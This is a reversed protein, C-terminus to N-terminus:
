SKFEYFHYNKNLSLGSFDGYVEEEIIEKYISEGKKFSRNTIKLFEEEKPIFYKEREGFMKKKLLKTLYLIFVFLILIYGYFLYILNWFDWTQSINNYKLYLLNIILFNIRHYIIFFNNLFKNIKENMNEEKKQNINKKVKKNIIKEKNVNKIEKYFYIIKKFLFIIIFISTQILLVYMPYIMNNLSSMKTNNKIFFFSNLFCILTFYIQYNMIKQNYNKEINM